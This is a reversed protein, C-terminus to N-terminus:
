SRSAALKSCNSALFSDLVPYIRKGCLTSAFEEDEDPSAEEARRADKRQHWKIGSNGARMM